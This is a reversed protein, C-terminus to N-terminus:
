KQQKMRINYEIDKLKKYAKMSETKAQQWDDSSTYDFDPIDVSQITHNGLELLGTKLLQQYLEKTLVLKVIEQM